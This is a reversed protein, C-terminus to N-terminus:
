RHCNPLLSSTTCVLASSHRLSWDEVFQQAYSSLSSLTSLQQNGYPDIESNIAVLVRSNRAPDLVKFTAGGSDGPALSARGTTVIANSGPVPSPPFMVKAYGVAFKAGPATAETAGWGTLLLNSTQNVYKPDYSITEYTVGTVDREQVYCLAFDGIKLSRSYHEYQECDATFSRGDHLTLSLIQPMAEGNADVSRHFCHAASMLVRPGVLVATCENEGIFISGSYQAPDASQGFYTLLKESSPITGALQVSRMMLMGTLPRKTQRSSCGAAVLATAAGLAVGRAFVTMSIAM